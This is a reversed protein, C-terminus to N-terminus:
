RWAALAAVVVCLTSISTLNPRGMKTEAKNGM